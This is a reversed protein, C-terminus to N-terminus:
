AELALTTEWEGAENKEIPTDPASVKTEPRGLSKVARGLFDGEARQDTILTLRIEDYAEDHEVASDRAATLLRALLEGFVDAEVVFPREVVKAKEDEEGYEPAMAEAFGQVAAGILGAKTNARLHLRRDDGDPLLEYFRM